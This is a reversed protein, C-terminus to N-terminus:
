REATMAKLDAVDQLLQTILVNESNIRVELSNAYANITNFRDRVGTMIRFIANSSMMETESFSNISGIQEFGTENPQVAKIRALVTDASVINAKEFKTSLGAIVGTHDAAELQSLQTFLGSIRTFEDDDVSLAAMMEAKFTALEVKSSLLPLVNQSLNISLKDTYWIAYDKAIFGQHDAYARFNGETTASANDVYAKTAFNAIVNSIFATTTDDSAGMAALRTAIEGLTDLAAPADTRLAVDYAAIRAIIFPVITSDDVFLGKLENAQLDTLHAFGHPLQNRSALKLNKM